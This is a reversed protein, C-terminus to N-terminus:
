ARAALAYGAGDRLWALAAERGKEAALAKFWGVDRSVQQEERMRTKDAEPLDPIRSAPLPGIRDLRLTVAELHQFRGDDTGTIFSCRYTATGGRFTLPLLYHVQVGVRHVEPDRQWEKWDAERSMTALFGLLPQRLEERHPSVRVAPIPGARPVAVFERWVRLEDPGAASAGPGVGPGPCPMFVGVRLAFASAAARGGWGAVM